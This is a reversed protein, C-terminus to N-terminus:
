AGGLQSEALSWGSSSYSLGVKEGGTPFLESTRSLSWLQGRPDPQPQAKGSTVGYKAEKGERERKEWRRIRNKQSYMRLLNRVCSDEDRIRSRSFRVLVGVAADGM